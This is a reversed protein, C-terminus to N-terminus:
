PRIFEVEKFWYRRLKGSPEQLVLPGDSDVDAICADFKLGSAVDLFPYYGGDGRWLSSLFAKHVEVRESPTSLKGLRRELVEALVNRVVGVDFSHGIIGAMSVPNPASSVFVTQNVNLGVGVITHTLSSGLLSHEILIGSIKGDGVYVDNPWKVKAEIGFRGLTEAVSLAVAESIAFQKRAPFDPLRILLSFTLNMGPESEWTNGRQGRGATQFKAVVMLPASLSAANRAIYSNTSDTSELELIEM